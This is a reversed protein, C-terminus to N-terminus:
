ADYWSCWGYIVIYNLKSKIPKLKSKLQNKVPYGLQRLNNCDKLFNLKLFQKIIHM